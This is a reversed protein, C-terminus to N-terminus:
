ENYHGRIYRDLSDSIEDELNSQSIVREWHKDKNLKYYANSFQMTYPGFSLCQFEIMHCKEGDYAIDVSLMPVDLEMFLLRALDLVKCIETNIGEPFILKGSGSARFDNDRILRKLVYYKDGYILVKYDYQLNPIFSQLVMKERPYTRIMYPKGALKLVKTKLKSLGVNKFISDNKRSYSIEGMKKAKSLLENRDKALAVGAAGSGSSTKIVMPYGIVKEIKKLSKKLDRMDYFNETSITKLEEHKLRKRLLEMFVKNHHAHFYKYEPLLILGHIDLDMLVDGIYEKYFLGRDESSPYFVFMGPKLSKEDLHHLSEIMVNYGKNELNEKVKEQSISRNIGSKLSTTTYENHDQLIIITRM